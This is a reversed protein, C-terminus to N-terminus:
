GVDFSYPNKIMEFMVLARAAYNSDYSSKVGLYRAVKLQGPSTGTTLLGGPTLFLPAGVLVGSWTTTTTPDWQDTEFVGGKYAVCGEGSVLGYSTDADEPAFEVKDVLVLQGVYDAGSHGFSAAGTVLLPSLTRLDRIMFAGSTAYGPSGAGPSSPGGDHAWAGSALCWMGKTVSLAGSTIVYGLGWTDEPAVIRKDLM